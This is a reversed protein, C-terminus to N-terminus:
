SPAASQAQLRTIFEEIVGALGPRATEAFCYRARVVPKTIVVLAALDCPTASVVLDADSANITHGLAALQADDYGIAPLVKEIHPYREYVTQIEAPATDRPDVIVHAHAKIAAVYGAGYPMGGHTITPGDEVVLVRKGRVLDESDLTVPSAARILTANPNVSQVAEILAQVGLSSAADIKNVVVVDAMRVVTEGPHHTSVQGPRLADVVAISLDPKVFSFDNNGGDWLIIDAEQEAAALIEAYDVGAFVLHGAAIHPEYEEREENSCRAADLDDSNAFRQVREAVLDGYPMPHRIVAARLGWEALWDAIYRVTQSKGCGTRAACVAIVPRQSSLMTRRPGLLVFDAGTSMSRSAARMVETHAVDSYAFVVQDVSERRCVDMLEVEDVIPIGSPYGAGALEAPYRRGSIGPIQAATFAVVEFRPDDRYVTNFNHFDRGAAGMIVTRTPSKSKKM